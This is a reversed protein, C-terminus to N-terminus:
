ASIGISTPILWVSLMRVICKRWGLRLAQNKWDSNLSESMCIATCSATGAGRWVCGCQRFWITWPRHELGHHTNSAVKLNKYRYIVAAAVVVGVVIVVEGEGEGAWGGGTPDTLMNAGSAGAVGFMVNVGSETARQRKCLPLPEKSLSHQIRENSLRIGLCMTDSVLWHRAAAFSISCQKLRSGTSGAPLIGKLCFPLLRYMENPVHHCMSACPLPHTVWSNSLSLCTMAQGYVVVKGELPQTLQCGRRNSPVAGKWEFVFVLRQAIAM